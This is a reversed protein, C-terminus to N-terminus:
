FDNINFWENDFIELGKPASSKKYTSTLGLVCLLFGGGFLVILSYILDVQPNDNGAFTPLFSPFIIKLTGLVLYFIGTSVAILKFIKPFKIKTFFMYLIKKPYKNVLKKVGKIDGIVQIDESSIGTHIVQFVAGQKTDLYDFTIKVSDGKESWILDVQNSHKNSTLISIDLIDVGNEGQIRLPNITKLDQQNITETGDNWFVIKSITLNKIKKNAFLVTLNEVKDSYGTILNNSRISWTPIKTRLGKRYFIYGVILGIVGLFWGIFDFKM